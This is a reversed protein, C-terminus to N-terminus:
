TILVLPINNIRLWCVKHDDVYFDLKIQELKFIQVISMIWEKKSTKYSNGVHWSNKPLYVTSVVSVKKGLKM